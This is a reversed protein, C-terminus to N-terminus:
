APDRPGSDAVTFAVRGGAQPTVTLAVWGERTYKLANTVLNVLVRQVAAAHGLRPDSPIPGIRLELGKEEALPRVITELDEVIRALAFAAPEGGALRDGGRALEMVDGVM